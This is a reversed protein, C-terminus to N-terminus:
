DKLCRKTLKIIMNTLSIPRYYNINEKDGAKHIPIINFYKFIDPSIGTQIIVNVIHAIPETLFESFM